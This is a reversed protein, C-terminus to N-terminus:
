ICKDLKRSYAYWKATYWHKAAWNIAFDENLAEEKSVEPWSPLHIQFYGYSKEQVGKRFVQSQINRFQTECEVTRLMQYGSIGHKNAVAYIKDELTPTIVEVAQSNEVMVALGISQVITNWGIMYTALFFTVGLFIKTLTRPGEIFRGKSNRRKKSTRWRPTHSRGCVKYTTCM